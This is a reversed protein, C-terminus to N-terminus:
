VPAAIDTHQHIEHRLFGYINQWVAKFCIEDAIKFGNGGKFPRIDFRNGHVHIGDVPIHHLFTKPWFRKAYNVAEVQDLFEIGLNVPDPKRDLSAGEMFPIRGLGSNAPQFFFRIELALFDLFFVPLELGNM